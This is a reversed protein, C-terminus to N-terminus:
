DTVGSDNVFQIVWVNDLWLVDVQQPKGSYGDFYRAKYVLEM